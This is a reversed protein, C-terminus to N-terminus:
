HRPATEYLVGSSVRWCAPPLFAARRLALCPRKGSYPKEQILAAHLNSPYLMVDKINLIMQDPYRNPSTLQPTITTKHPTYSVFCGCRHALSINFMLRLLM